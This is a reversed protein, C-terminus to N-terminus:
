AAGTDRLADVPNMWAARLAPLLSALTSFVFVLIVVTVMDMWDTRSPIEALKYVSAPFVEVGWASRMGQVIENRYHLFVQGSVIGAIVGLLSLTWGYILFVFMIRGPTFGIAQLLGIERTKQVGVIILTATVCFMAVGAVSILLLFMMSKENEIAQLYTSNNEDERWTRLTYDPGLQQRLMERIRDPYMPEELQVRISHYGEEVDFLDRAKELSVFVFRSDFDYEGVQYVAAVRPEEPLVLEDERAISRASILLVDQGPFVRLRSALHAGMFVEDRYLGDPDGAIISESVTSVDSLRDPDTGVVVVPLTESGHRILVLDRILSAVGSVGEVEALSDLLDEDDALPGFKSTITIHDSFGLFKQNWLEAFGNMISLVIMLIAVGLMVGMLSLVTVVSVISRRPRLYRTALFASFPLHM